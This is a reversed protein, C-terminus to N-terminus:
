RADLRAYYEDEEHLLRAMAKDRFIAIYDGSGHHSEFIEALHAGCSLAYARAKDVPRGSFDRSFGKADTYHGFGMATVRSLSGKVQRLSNPWSQFTISLEFM